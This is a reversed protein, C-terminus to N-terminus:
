EDATWITRLRESHKNFIIIAGLIIMMLINHKRKNLLKPQSWWFFFFRNHSQCRRFWVYLQPAYVLFAGFWFIGNSINTSFAYITRLKNITHLNWKLMITALIWLNGCVITWCVTISHIYLSKRAVFHIKYSHCANCIQISFKSFIIGFINVNQM